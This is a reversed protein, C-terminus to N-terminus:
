RFSSVSTKNLRFSLSSTYTTYGAYIYGSGSIVTSPAAAATAASFFRSFITRCRVHITTFRSDFKFIGIVPFAVALSPFL